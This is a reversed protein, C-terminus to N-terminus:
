APQRRSSQDGIPRFRSAGKTRLKVSGSASRLRVRHLARVRVGGARDTGRRWRRAGRWFNTAGQGGGSSRRTTPRSRVGRWPRRSRAPGTASSARAAPSSAPRPAFVAAPSVSLRRSPVEDFVRLTVATADCARRGPGPWAWSCWCRGTSVSSTRTPLRGIRSELKARPVTTIKDVMLQSPQRLGSREGPEVALRMLPADVLHTTFPCITVSATASFADDQLVVAPRRKGVYDPGGAVTWIDGRKMAAAVRVGFDVFAQDDAEHESRGVVLSQRRAERRFGSAQVDPVRIQTPRLGRRRLQERHARRKERSGSTTPPM